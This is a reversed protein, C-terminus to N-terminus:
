KNPAVSPNAAAPAAPKAAPTAPKAAPAAPKATPVAPKAVPTTAKVAPKAAPAAPAPKEAPAVIELLEVEFILTSNGPINPPAGREGYAIDSPCVLRAKGGVNIKQVGETWCKIVRNLPFEAPKGRKISSDFETGDILTGRYHVKVKDTAKPMPGTGAKLTTMILGSATKTAGPKSAEATLFATGEAKAKESQVKRRKEVLDRIKAQYSELGAQAKGGVEEKLGLLVWKLETDSLNFIALSKGIQTGIAYFTKDDDTAPSEAWSVSAILSLCLISILAKM